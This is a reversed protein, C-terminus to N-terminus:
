LSVSYHRKKKIRITPGCAEDVAEFWNGQASGSVPEDILGHKRDYIESRDVSVSKPAEVGLKVQPGNQELVYVFIDDGIRICQGASRTLVLM